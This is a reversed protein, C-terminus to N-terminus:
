RKNASIQSTPEDQDRSSTRASSRDTESWSSAARPRRLAKPPRPSPRASPLRRRPRRPWPSPKPWWTTGHCSSRAAASVVHDGADTATAVILYVRGDSDKDAEGRLRLSSPAIDKADPSNQSPQSDLDDEDSFVSVNIVPVGKDDSADVDLGVAELTAGSASLAPESVTCQVGPTRYLAEDAFAMDALNLAGAATQDFHLRVARV